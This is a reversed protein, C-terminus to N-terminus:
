TLNVIETQMRLVFTLDVHAHYNKGHLRELTRARKALFLGQLFDHDGNRNDSKSFIESELIGIGQLHQGLRYSRYKLHFSLYFKVSTLKLIRTQFISSM